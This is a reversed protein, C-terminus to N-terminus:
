GGIGDRIKEVLSVTIKRNEELQEPTYSPLTAEFDRINGVGETFIKEIERIDTLHQINCFSRSLIAAGSGLRYHETIVHESPLLGLGIRAIGGFGFPIGRKKAIGAIREVTGDALLEFMFRRGYSLHLDNLGIHVEDTPCHELVAELSEAMERTEVLLMTRARGGVLEVFRRVEDESRAMPLMIVDAGARVIGEIEEESGVFDPSPEAIPNCRVLLEAGSLAGRIRHVDNITHHSKVTDGPQRQEKGVYELDVFIRDVGAREAIGAVVPDNTIYMLKLPM